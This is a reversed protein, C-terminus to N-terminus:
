LYDYEDLAPWEALAAAMEDAARLAATNTHHIAVWEIWGVAWHGERVILVTDGFAATSNTTELENWQTDWNSQELITSAKSRGVPAAYYGHWEAGMYDSPRTWERLHKPKYTM